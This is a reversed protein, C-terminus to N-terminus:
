SKIESDVCLPRRCRGRRRRVVCNRCAATLGYASVCCYTVCLHRNQAGLSLHQDPSRAAQAQLIHERTVLYTKIKQKNTNFHLSLNEKEINRKRANILKHAASFGTSSRFSVLIVVANYWYWKIAWVNAYIIWKQKMRKWDSIFQASANRLWEDCM